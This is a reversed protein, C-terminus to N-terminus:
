AKISAGHELGKTNDRFKRYGDKTMKKAADFGKKLKGSLDSLWDAIEEDSWQPDPHFETHIMDLAGVLADVDADDRAVRMSQSRDSVDFYGQVSLAATNSAHADLAARLNAVDIAEQKNLPKGLAAAAAYSPPAHEPRRCSM